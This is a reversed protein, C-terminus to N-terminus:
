SGGPATTDGPTTTCAMSTSVTGAEIEDPRVQVDTGTANCRFRDREVAVTRERDGVRVTVEYARRDRFAVALPAGAPFEAEIKRLQADGTGVSVAMARADGTLNWAWVHPTQYHNGPSDPREGVAFGRFPEYTDSEVDPSRPVGRDAVVAPEVERVEPPATATTTWATTEGTTTGNTTEGTAPRDTTGTADPSDDGTGLCGAVGVSLAIGCTRLHTRRSPVDPPHDDGSM